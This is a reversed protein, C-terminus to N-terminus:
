TNIPAPLPRDGSRWEDVNFWVGTRVREALCATRHPADVRYLESDIIQVSAEEYDEAELARRTNKFLMFGRRGVQYNLLAIVHRRVVNHTQFNSISDEAHMLSDYLAAKALVTAEMLSIPPTDPTVKEGYVWSSGFGIFWDDSNDIQPRCEHEPDDIVRLPDNEMQMLDFLLTEFEGNM